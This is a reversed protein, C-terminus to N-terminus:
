EEDKKIIEIVLNKDVWEEWYGKEYYSDYQKIKIAKNIIKVIECENYVSHTGRGFKSTDILVTDGVNYNHKIHDSNGYYIAESSNTEKVLVYKVKIIKSVSDIAKQIDWFIIYALNEATTNEFIENLDKHDYKDMIYTSLLQGLDYYDFVMGNENTNGIVCVKGYYSHGHYVACKGKHFPLSHASEFRFEKSIECEHIPVKILTNEM